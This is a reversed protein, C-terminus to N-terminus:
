LYKQFVYLLVLYGSLDLAASHVISGACAQFKRELFSSPCFLVWM